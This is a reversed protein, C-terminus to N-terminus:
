KTEKNSPDFQITPQKRYTDILWRLLASKSICRRQSDKTLFEDLDQTVTVTIYKCEELFRRNGM